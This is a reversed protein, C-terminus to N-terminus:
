IHLRYAIWIKSAFYGFRITKTMKWERERHIEHCDFRNSNRVLITKFIMTLTWSLCKARAGRKKWKPSRRRGRNIFMAPREWKNHYKCPLPNISANWECEAMRQFLDNKMENSHARTKKERRERKIGEIATKFNPQYAVFANSTIERNEYKRVVSDMGFREIINTQM